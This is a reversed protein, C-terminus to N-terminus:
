ELCGILIKYRDLVEFSSYKLKIIKKQKEGRIILYKQGLLFM